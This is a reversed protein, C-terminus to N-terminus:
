SNQGWRPPGTVPLRQPRAFPRKSADAEIPSLLCNIAPVNFRLRWFRIHSRFCDSLVGFAPNLGLMGTLSHATVQDSPVMRKKQRLSGVFNESRGNRKRRLM